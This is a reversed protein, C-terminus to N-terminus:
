SLRNTLHVKVSEGEEKQIAQRIASKVPLMHTGDGLAMLSSEFPYGDITGKVKVLGRTGFFNVSDPVIVRTWSGKHTGRQLTATFKKDIDM